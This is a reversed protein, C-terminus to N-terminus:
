KKPTTVAAKQIYNPKLDVLDKHPSLNILHRALLDINFHPEWSNALGMLDDGIISSDINPLDTEALLGETEMKDLTGTGKGFYWLGKRALFGVANYSPVCLSIAKLTSISYVQRQGSFALGQVFALGTRLGTFSGPGRTTLIKSIDVMSINTKQLGVDLLKNLVEGRGKPECHKWLLVGNKYLGIHIDKLSTELILDIL